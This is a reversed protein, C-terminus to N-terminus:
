FDTTDLLNMGTQQTNVKDRLIKNKDRYRRVITQLKDVKEVMQKNSTVLNVLAGNYNDDIYRMNRALDNDKGLTRMIAQMNNESGAWSMIKNLDDSEAKRSRYYVESGGLQVSWPKITSSIMSQVRLFRSKPDIFILIGGMKLSQKGTNPDESVYRIQMGTELQKIHEMQKFGKLRDIIDQRSFDKQKKWPQSANSM